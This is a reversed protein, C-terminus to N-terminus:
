GSFGSSVVAVSCIDAESPAAAAGGTPAVAKESDGRAGSEPSIRYPNLPWGSPLNAVRGEVRGTAPDYTTEKVLGRDRYRFTSSREELNVESPAPYLSVPTPKMGGERECHWKEILPMEDGRPFVDFLDVLVTDGGEMWVTATEGNSQLLRGERGDRMEVERTRGPRVVRRHWQDYEEESGVTDPISTSDKERQKKARKRRKEKAAESNFGLSQSASMRRRHKKWNNDDGYFSDELAYGIANRLHRQSQIRVVDCEKGGGYKFWLNRIVEMELHISVVMHAHPKGEEDYEIGYMYCWEQDDRNCRYRFGEVLDELVEKLYAEQQEPKLPAEQEGTADKVAGYQCTVTVFLLNPKDKMEDFFHAVHQRYLRPGCKRCFKRNCSFLVKQEELEGTRKNMRRRTMPVPNSCDKSWDLVEDETSNKLDVNSMTTNHTLAFGTSVEWAALRRM